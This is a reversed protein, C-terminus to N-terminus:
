TTKPTVDKSTFLRLKGRLKITTEVPKTETGSLIIEDDNWSVQAQECQTIVPIDKETQKKQEIKVHGRLMCTNSPVM